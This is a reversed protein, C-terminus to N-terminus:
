SRESSSLKKPRLVKEKETHSKKQLSVKEKPIFSKKKGMLSIREGWSKKKEHSVREKQTPSKM